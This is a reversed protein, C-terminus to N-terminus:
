KEAPTNTLFTVTYWFNLCYVLIIARADEERLNKKLLDLDLSDIVQNVIRVPHNPDIMEELSPPLLLIQNPSYDKFVVKSKNNQM